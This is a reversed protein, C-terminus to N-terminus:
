DLTVYKRPNDRDPVFWAPKGMADRGLRAGPVPPLAAEFGPQQVPLSATRAMTAPSQVVQSVGSLLRPELDGDQTGVVGSPKQDSLMRLQQQMVELQGMFMEILADPNPSRGRGVPSPLPRVVPNATSSTPVSANPTM